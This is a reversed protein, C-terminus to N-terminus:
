VYPTTSLRVLTDPEAIKFVIENTDTVLWACPAPMVNVLGNFTEGNLNTAPLTLLQARTIAPFVFGSNSLNEQVSQSLEELWSSQDEQKVFPSVEM